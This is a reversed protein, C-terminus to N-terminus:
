TLQQKVYADVCQGCTDFLHNLVREIAEPPLKYLVYCGIATACLVAVLKVGNSVKM